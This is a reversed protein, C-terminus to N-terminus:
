LNTGGAAMRSCGTDSGSAVESGAKQAESWWRSRWSTGVQCRPEASSVQRGGTREGEGVDLDCGSSCNIM